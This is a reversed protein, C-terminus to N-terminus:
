VAAIGLSASRYPLTLTCVVRVTDATADNFLRVSEIYVSVGAGDEMNDLFM